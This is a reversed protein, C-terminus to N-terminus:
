LLKLAGEEAKEAFEFATYPTRHASIVRIEYDVGFKDLIGIVKDGLKRDSLSGM